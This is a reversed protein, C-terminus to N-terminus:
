TVSRTSCPKLNFRKETTKLAPMETEIIRELRKLDAQSPPTYDPRDFANVLDIGYKVAIARATTYPIAAIPVMEANRRIGLAQEKHRRKEAYAKAAAVDVREKITLVPKGKEDRNVTYSKRSIDRMAMSLPSPTNGGEGQSGLSM